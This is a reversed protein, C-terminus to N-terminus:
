VPPAQHRRPLTRPCFEDVRPAVTAQRRLPTQQENVANSTSVPCVADFDPPPAQLTKHAARPARPMPREVGLHSPNETTLAFGGDDM